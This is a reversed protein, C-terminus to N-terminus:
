RGSEALIAQLRDPFDTILGDAGLAILDRMEQPDNVTWYHVALNRAHAAAVFGPRALHLGSSERPDSPVQAAQMGGRWLRDLRLLRLFVFDRTENRASSTAVRGHTLSRFFELTADDFSAVVVRDTMQYKAILAALNSAAERGIEERDKLELVMQQQRYKQFLEEMTATHAPHDRFPHAGTADQFHYGFNLAKMEALSHDRVAGTGNSRHEVTANHHTVLVDDRTLRLDMELMDCGRAVSAAFAELTNEPNLGLGGAHAIVLPRGPRAARFPNVGPVAGRPPIVQALLWAAGLVGIGGALWRLKHKM